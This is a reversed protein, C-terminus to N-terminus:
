VVPEIQTTMADDGYVDDPLFYDLALFPMPLVRISDAQVDIVNEVGDANYSVRAGVFFLKGAPAEGGSQPNPIIIWVFERSQGAAITAPLTAPPLLNYFFAFDKTSANPNPSAAVQNGQEDAFSVAVQFGTLDAAGGNNVKMTARFAQRELTVTQDIEIKVRVCISSDGYCCVGLCHAVLFCWMWCFGRHRFRQTSVKLGLNTSFRRRSKLSESITMLISSLEATLATFAIYAGIYM